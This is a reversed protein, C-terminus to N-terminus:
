VTLQNCNNKLSEEASGEPARSTETLRGKTERGQFEVQTGQLGPQTSVEADKDMQETCRQLLLKGQVNM